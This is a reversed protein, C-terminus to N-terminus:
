KINTKLIEEIKSQLEEVSHRRSRGCEQAQMDCILCKRFFNRSLKKFNVDIVDMDFIRGLFSAEEIDVAIRKLDDAKIDAVIWLEDGTKTNKQKLELMKTNNKELKELLKIKGYEFAKRIAENTKVPGPINMTFSLIPLNYKKILENQIYVREERADLIEELSVEEGQLM